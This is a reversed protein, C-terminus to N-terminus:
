MLRIDLEKNFDEFNQGCTEVICNKRGSRDNISVGADESKGIQEGYNRGLAVSEEVVSDGSHWYFFIGRWSCWGDSDAALKKM